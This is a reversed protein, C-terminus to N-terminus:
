KPQSWLSLGSDPPAPHQAKPWRRRESRWQRTDEKKPEVADPFASVLDVGGPPRTANFCRVIPSGEGTLIEGETVSFFPPASVTATM